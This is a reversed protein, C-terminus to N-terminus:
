VEQQLFTVHNYWFYSTCVILSSIGIQVAVPNLSFNEVVLPVGLTTILFYWGHFMFFKALEPGCHGRSRFVLFKNMM